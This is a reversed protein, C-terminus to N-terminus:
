RVEKAYKSIVSLMIDVLMVMEEVVAYERNGHHNYSGTGLNPCPVGMRSIGAGDTGGRMPAPRADLGQERIADMAYEIHEEHGKMCEAMNRYSDKFSIEVTDAGYKKNLFEACKSMLAKRQELKDIDHDRIIYELIAEECNGNMEMLYYGETHEPRESAPLAEAFECAVHLANKMKNKAEGPHTVIGHIKISASAANFNEYSIEDPAAGDLTYARDAALKKVDFHDVSTGIEEDPTFSFAIDGHKFEPTKVMYELATMIEAVGAKDDGGLLTKGNTVVITKGKANMLAENCAPDLVVGECLTVPEGDYNDIVRAEDGPYPFELATDMHAIFGITPVKADINGRLKGYIYGKDDLEVETIGLAKIEEILVKALNLQKATSPVTESTDDSQTDIKIYTLFNKLVSQKKDVAKEKFIFLAHM